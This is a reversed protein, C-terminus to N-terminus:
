HILNKQINCIEISEENVLRFLVCDENFDNKHQELLTKFKLCENLINSYDTSSSRGTLLIDIKGYLLNIKLSSYFKKLYYM